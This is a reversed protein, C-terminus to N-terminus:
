NVINGTDHRAMFCDPHNQAWNVEGTVPTGTDPLLSIPRSCGYSETDQVTPNVDVRTHFATSVDHTFSLWDSLPARSSAGLVSAWDLAQHVVSFSSWIKLQKRYVMGRLVKRYPFGVLVATTRWTQKSRHGRLQEPGNQRHVYDWLMDASIKYYLSKSSLSLGCVWM